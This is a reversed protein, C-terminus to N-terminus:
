AKAYKNTNCCVLQMTDEEIFLKFIGGPTISTDAPINPGPPREPHFPILAPATDIDNNTKWNDKQKKAGPM